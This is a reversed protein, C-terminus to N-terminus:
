AIEAEMVQGDIRLAQVFGGSLRNQDWIILPLDAKPMLTRGVEIAASVPLAPFVHITADPGHKAKISDFLKRLHKRLAALDEPRRMIDNHPDDCILSWIPYDGALASRIRDDTITASLALKLAVVPGFAVEHETIRFLIPDQDAQWRWTTPERHRQHVSVPLIDGLLRGLEILLPQPALAFVSLHKMERRAIREKVKQAFQRRLNELQLVWYAPEHDAFSSGILEIDIPWREAPYHGPAMAAFLDKTSILADRQGIDAAFRLVHSARENEIGLLLAVRDEHEAKMERLLAEPHDALFDVDIAKHHRACLLMLNDISRALSVSRDPAGRPGNPSDAVIHALFGFTGDERGAVLDGILDCNCGRYECRGGARAWLAAQVKQPISTKAL